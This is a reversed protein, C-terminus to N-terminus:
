DIWDFEKHKYVPNQVFSGEEKELYIGDERASWDWLGGTDLNSFVKFATFKQYHKYNPGQKLTCMYRTTHFFNVGFYFTYNQGMSIIKPGIVDDKSYCRMWLLKKSKLQNAIRIGAGSVIHHLM